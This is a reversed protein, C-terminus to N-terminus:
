AILELPQLRWEAARRRRIAEVYADRCQQCHVRSPVPTRTACEACIRNAPRRTVARSTSGHM